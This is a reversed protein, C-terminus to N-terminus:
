YPEQPIGFACGLEQTRKDIFLKMGFHDLVELTDSVKEPDYMLCELM